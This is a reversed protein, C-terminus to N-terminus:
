LSNPAGNFVGVAYELSNDLIKGHGMIGIQRNQLYNTTFMSLEPAIFDQPSLMYFQYTYPTKFRGFRVQFKEKYEKGFPNIDVYEDLVNFTSPGTPAAAAGAAVISTFDVYETANGRFILWERALTFNDHLSTPTHRDGATHAFDRYDIQLLNDFKLS